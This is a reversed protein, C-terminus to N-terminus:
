RVPPHALIISILTYSSGLWSSPWSWWAQWSAWCRESHNTATQHRRPSLIRFATLAKSIPRRVVQCKATHRRVMDPDQQRPIHPRSSPNRIHHRSRIGKRNNHRTNRNHIHHNRTNHNHSSPIRKILIPCIPISHSRHNSRIHHPIQHKMPVRNSLIPSNPNSIHIPSNHIHRSIQILCLLMSRECVRHTCPNWWPMHRTAPMIHYRGTASCRQPITAFLTM